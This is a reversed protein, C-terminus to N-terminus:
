SIGAFINVPFPLVIRNLQDRRFSLKGGDGYEPRSVTHGMLLCRLGYDIGAELMRKEFSHRFSYIRHAGTPFLKRTRFHKMLVASLNDENDRYRKFGEPACKIAALSVGVLPIDRVSSDTKIARDERHTIRIHPVAHDLMIHEPLLNCIESPRCGTEILALMILAAEGNLGDLAPRKLITGSIFETEFPPVQKKDSKRDSFSLDRFPNQIDHQGIRSHYLRFMRRLNGIERNASNGSMAPSKGAGTVRDRWWDRYKVTDKRTISSFAKDGILDIFGQVARRPAKEWAKKQKVSKGKLHDPSIESIYIELAESILVIPADVGGLLAEVDRKSTVGRDDSELTEVRRLLGELPENSISLADKYVFGLAMARSKAASYRSDMKKRPTAGGDLVLLAWYNDDSEELADRRLRAVDKSKTKLSTRVTGRSDIHTVHKPVRRVYHWRGGRLILYRDVDRVIVSGQLM